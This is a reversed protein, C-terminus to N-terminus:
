EPKIGLQSILEHSSETFESIDPVSGCINDAFWNINIIEDATMCNGEENVLKGHQNYIESSFPNMQGNSVMNKLMYVLQRSGAPIQHSTVVDIAGSSMGWYYNLGHGGGANDDNKWVGNLVSRILSEYVISWKWVPMAINFRFDGYLGYLGFEKSEQFPATLDRNSIIDVKHIKMDELPDRDKLASWELFIQARPNVMRVGLAFANISAPMGFIPYDAIYGIRDNETMSGALAGVIFKAEYIRLYYTRLHRFANNLSCNIVIVEPHEVACRLSVSSLVPTTTFIVKYGKSIISEFLEIDSSDHTIFSETQIKDKLKDQVEYRATEHAFTWGSINPEKYHVFAVKLIQGVSTLIHPISKKRSEETPDMIMSFPNDESLMVFESWVKSINKKIDQSSQNRVEDYGFIDIYTLLQEGITSSLKDGGKEIYAKRFCCYIYKIELSEDDTLPEDDNPHIHRYLKEFSGEKTMLLYNIKTKAYFDLFEYYVKNETTDNRPPVLRTVIGEVAVAGMFKQVSVRKNGEVLYFRNMYEYAVVPDRQGSECLSDYLESWKTAFETEAPLLPMFDRSFANTRGATYTGEILEIPIEVLGLKVQSMPPMDAIIEELVPLYKNNAGELRYTREGMKLAKQYDTYAM